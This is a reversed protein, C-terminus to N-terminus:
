WEWREFNIRAGCVCDASLAMQDSERWADVLVEKGCAPCVEYLDRGTDVYANGDRDFRLTHAGIRERVAAIDAGLSTGIAEVIENGNISIRTGM